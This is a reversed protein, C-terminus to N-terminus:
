EGVAVGCPSGDDMTFYDYYHEAPFWNLEVLIYGKSVATIAARGGSEKWRVVKGVPVEDVTWPRYKMEPKIRTEYKYPNLIMRIAAKLEDITM